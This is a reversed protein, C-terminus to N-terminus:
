FDIIDRGKEALQGRRDYGIPRTLDCDNHIRVSGADLLM